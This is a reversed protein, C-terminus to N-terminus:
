RATAPINNTGSLSTGFAFYLYEGSSNNHGGDTNRLKFGHSYMDLNVASSQTNAGTGNFTLYDDTVNFPSRQDDYVFWGDASDERKIVLMRPKFGTYVFTGDTNSNGTYLGCTSFGPKNVFCYALMTNGNGNVTADNGLTILTSTPDTTNFASTNFEVSTSNFEVAKNNGRLTPFCVRWDSSTSTNKFWVMDPKAGLGHGITAGATNNGTFKVISFGANTNARTETTITGSSNSASSGAKWNWSVYTQSNVNVNYPAADAGLTFGDSDFSTLTDAGTQEADNASSQLLKTAGRASDCLRHSGAGDTRKMWVLDPQFGVGTVANTSGNGSYTLAKFNSKADATTYAM